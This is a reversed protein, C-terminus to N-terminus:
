VGSRSASTSSELQTLTRRYAPMAAIFLVIASVMGVVNVLALSIPLASQDHFVHDTIWPVAIPGLTYSVLNLVLLFLAAGQARMAPPVVEVAATSAAGWPFAAFFNVIVLWLVAAPASAAFPYASASVLMGLAGIVGIRL